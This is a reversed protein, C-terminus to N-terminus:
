YINIHLFLFISYYKKDSEKKIEVDKFYVGCPNENPVHPPDTPFPYELNSYAPKDYDRETYTQWCRPVTIDDFFLTDTNNLVIEKSLDEFSKFFKFKWQGSLLTFFESEERKGKLASEKDAYPIYYSRPELTGFHLTDLSKHFEPFFM